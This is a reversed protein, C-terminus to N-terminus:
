ETYIGADSFLKRCKRVREVSMWEELHTAGTLVPKIGLKQTKDQWLPHYGMLQTKKVKEARYLSIIDHLNEMTDTIGPILPTRPLVEKGGDLYKKYLKKFNELIIENSVGCFKKHNARDVIKIDFYILDVDPYVQEVFTDYDFYGCTEILVHVGKEKLAKAIEALYDMHLTPEGGSFTVGGQSTDFFPKDKLMKEVVTSTKMVHGVQELADAPCNEVCEFCLNCLRRDIFFPNKKSLANQTCTEVCTQCDICEGPDFSIEFGKKKSEPNHCWICSLPCGKFFVVSRIGPGDDLSNGKVELILTKKM